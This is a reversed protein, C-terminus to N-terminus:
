ADPDDWESRRGAFDCDPCGFLRPKFRRPGPRWALTTVHGCAPCQKRVRKVHAPGSM